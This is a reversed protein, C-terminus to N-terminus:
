DSINSSKSFFLKSAVCDCWAIVLDDDVAGRRQFLDGEPGAVKEVKNSDYVAEVLQNGYDNRVETILACGHLTDGVGFWVFAPGEPLEDGGFEEPTFAVFTGPGNGMKYYDFWGLDSKQMSYIYHKM